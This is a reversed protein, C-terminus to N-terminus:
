VGVWYIPNCGSLGDAREDLAAEAGVTLGQFSMAKREVM